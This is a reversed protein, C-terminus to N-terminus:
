LQQTQWRKGRRRIVLRRVRRELPVNRRHVRRRERLKHMPGSTSSGSTGAQKKTNDFTRQARIADSCIGGLQRKM